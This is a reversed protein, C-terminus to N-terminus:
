LTPSQLGLDALVRRALFSKMGHPPWPVFNDNWIRVQYNPVGPLRGGSPDYWNNITVCPLPPPPSPWQVRRIGFGFAQCLLERLPDIPASILIAHAPTAHGAWPDIGSQARALGDAVLLRKIVSGGKSHGILTVATGPPLALLDARVLAVADDVHARISGGPLRQWDFFFVGSTTALNERRSQGSQGWAARFRHWDDLTWGHFATVWAWWADPADYWADTWVGSIAYLVRRPSAVSHADTPANLNPQM